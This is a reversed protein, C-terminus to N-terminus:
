VEFILEHNTDFLNIIDENKGIHYTQIGFQSAASIHQISDDIFVTKTPNLNEKKIIYEFIELNPKRMGIEFSFYAKKFIEDFNTYGFKQLQKIYLNYHIINTNSLLFIRYNQKISELLDIRRKPLDLIIKNWAYDIKEDSLDKESVKRIGNRFEDPSIKGIELNDFLHIQTAQSYSEEFNDMGIEKFADITLQYDINLIVGGFDFIINEVNLKKKM